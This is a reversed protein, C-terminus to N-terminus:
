CLWQVECIQLQNLDRLQAVLLHAYIWQNYWSTTSVGGLDGAVSYIVYYKNMKLVGFYMFEIDRCM